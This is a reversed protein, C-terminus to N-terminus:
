SVKVVAQYAGVTGGTRGQLGLQRATQSVVLFRVSSPISNGSCHYRAPKIISQWLSDHQQQKAQPAFRCSLSTTRKRHIRMPISALAGRQPAGTREQSVPGSGRSACRASLLCAILLNVVNGHLPLVSFHLPFSLSLSM